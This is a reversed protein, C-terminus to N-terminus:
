PLTYRKGLTYCHVVGWDLTRALSLERGGNTVGDSTRKSERMAFDFAVRIETQITSRQLLDLTKAMLDAENLAVLRKQKVSTITCLTEIGTRVYTM